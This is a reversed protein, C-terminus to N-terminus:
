ARNESFTHTESVLFSHRFVAIAFAQLRQRGVFAVIAMCMTLIIALFVTISAVLGGARLSALGLGVFLVVLLLERLSLQSHSKMRIDIEGAARGCMVPTVLM